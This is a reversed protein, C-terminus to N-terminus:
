LESEQGSAAQLERTLREMFAEKRFNEQYYHRANRGYETLKGPEDLLDRIKEALDKSNEPEACVGCGSDTILRATEGGISGVLPKGAALCSQVKGPLTAAVGPYNKLSILMADAMAYIDAVKEVEMRGHFVVNPLDAAQTRCADLASGDGVIDFIVRKDDRLLEAAGIITDVSQMEGINGAFVMHLPEGSAPKEPVNDFLSEAYQPLYECAVPVRLYDNIYSAFGRSTILIRDVCRYIKRSIRFFMKYVPSERSINAALLSEPWLDLCYLVVKKGHKKAYRLAGEAMIVPSLQYVLVVDYEEKLRSLYWTSSIAFSYYNIIRNLSGTKRPITYCRRVRVGCELTERGWSKEYGPYIVGEPYNPVGTVVTVQHGQQALTECIDGLRFPEPKYHQCVVLIKM